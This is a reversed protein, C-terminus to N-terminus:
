DKQPDWASLDPFTILDEVQPSIELEWIVELTTGLNHDELSEFTVKHFTKEHTSYPQVDQVLFTQNRVRVIQGPEPVVM